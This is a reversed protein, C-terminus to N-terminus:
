IGARSPGSPERSFRKVLDVYAPEHVWELETDSAPEPGLGPAAGLSELLSIGPGFRRPTLPHEPRFDYTTSRPGFVLLPPRQEGSARQDTVPQATRAMRPVIAAHGVACAGVRSTTLATRGGHRM